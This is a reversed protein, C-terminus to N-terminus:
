EVVQWHKYYLSVSNDDKCTTSVLEEKNKCQEGCKCFDSCATGQKRCGCQKRLCNGKCSCKSTSPQRNTKQLFLFIHYSHLIVTEVIINQVQGIYFYFVKDLM